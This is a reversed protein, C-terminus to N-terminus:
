IYRKEKKCKKRNYDLIILGVLDLLDVLPWGFILTANIWILLALNIYLQLTHPAPQTPLPISITINAMQMVIWIVLAFANIVQMKRFDFIMSTKVLSSLAFWFVDSFLIVLGSYTVNYSVFGLMLLVTLSTLGLGLSVFGVLRRIFSVLDIM